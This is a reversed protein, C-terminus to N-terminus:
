GQASTKKVVVLLMKFREEATVGHPIDAPMAIVEGAKVTFPKGDISIAAQGDLVHVLADAPASHTSLGEGKDFAFVTMSLYKNQVLTRSIVQGDKYEVMDNVALPESFPINKLLEMPRLNNM